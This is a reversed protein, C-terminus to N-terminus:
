NKLVKYTGTQGNVTVKMIYTGTTLGAINIDSTTAGITTSIVQQGLLNFIAVSDISNASKLSIVDTAPNPYFAFDKLSNEAVGATGGIVSSWAVQDSGGNFLGILTSSGTTLDLERWQSQGADSNYASLYATGNGFCAGQGFNANFGLSGLPTAAGTALDIFYLNDDVIDASYGDGNSDILLSIAGLMGTPGVVTSTANTIDITALSSSANIAVSIAYLTGSADFEAGSWTEAGPAAITGESTYVGSALDVSYFAGGNDLVWATGEDNPDISGANEFGVAPSVGLTTLVPAATPDWSVLSAATNNVGFAMAPGGGGGPEDDGLVNWVLGQTLGLAAFDTPTAAGCDAAQIYSPGTQGDNNCGFRMFNTDTGDDVLVLEMVMAEGAPISATLPLTVITASDANTANYVATGQLTLTGGPFAGPTASYINATIPFGTPTTVTGLAFEVASVDLGNMIGFDGALDFARFLNNNRFSTPSACAISTTLDITQSNSQTVVVPAINQVGNFHVNIMRQEKQTFYDNINGSVDGITQLRTLLSEITVAPEQTSGGGTFSSQANMLGVSGIFCALLLTIKRM